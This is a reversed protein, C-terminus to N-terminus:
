APIGLGDWADFDDGACAADSGARSRDGGARSAGDDERAADGACAADGREYGGDDGACAADDPACAGEEAAMVALLEGYREHGAVDFLDVMQAKAGREFLWVTGVPQDLITDVTKHAKMGVFRATEVDQGGLYLLHDCGNVITTAKQKGYLADLQTISQLVVSVAINRSRIVSIINDFDPIVANTAFDDLYLRVPVPLAHCPCEKDAYEVLQQLAQAYLLAVMRDHSRDMDSVTLFLATKRLGLDRFDIRIPNSAMAAADDYLFLGLKESVFSLISANTKEAALTPKISRWKRATFSDPDMESFEDLLMGTRGTPLTPKAPRLEGALQAVSLLNQEDEPLSELVYGILMAIYDRASLEWFPDRSEEVPCLVAAVKMIDRERPRGTGANCGIFDLPNYGMGSAMDTFDIALVDYGNARLVPGLECVLSGKTDTVIASENMQLLNPKVYGQTKGAGSAGVILDNNNLHTARTDNSVLHGQALIRNGPQNIHYIANGM